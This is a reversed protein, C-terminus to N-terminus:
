VLALATCLTPLPLTIIASTLCALQMFSHVALSYRAYPCPPYAESHVLVLRLVGLIVLIGPPADGWIERSHLVAPCGHEGMIEWFDSKEYHVAIVTTVAGYKGNCGGVAVLRGCLTTLPSLFYPLDAICWWITSHQAALPASEALSPLQCSQLLESVSCTFPSCKQYDNVNIYLVGCASQYPVSLSILCYPAIAIYWQRTDTDLVEVTCQSGEGGAIILSLSPTLTM